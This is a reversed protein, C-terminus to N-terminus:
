EGGKSKGSGEMFEDHGARVDRNVIGNGTKAFGIAGSCDAVFDVELPCGPPSGFRALGDGTEGGVDLGLVARVPGEGDVVHEDVGVEVAGHLKECAM